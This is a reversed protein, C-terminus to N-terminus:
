AGMSRAVPAAPAASSTDLVAIRLGGGVRAPALIVTYNCLGPVIKNQKRHGLCYTSHLLLYQALLSLMSLTM